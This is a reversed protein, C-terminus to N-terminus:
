QGKKAVKERNRESAAWELGKELADDITEAYIWDIRKHGWSYSAGNQRHDMVPTAFRVLFGLINKDYLWEAVDDFDEDQISEEIRDPVKVGLVKGIDTEERFFDRLDDCISGPSMMALSLIKDAQLVGDDMKDIMEKNNM